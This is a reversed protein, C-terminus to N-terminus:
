HEHKMAHTKCDLNLLRVMGVGPVRTNIVTGRWVGSEAVCTRGEIFRPCGRVVVCDVVKVVALTLVCVCCM